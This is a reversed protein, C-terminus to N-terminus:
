REQQERLQKGTSIEVVNSDPWHLEIQLDDLKGSAILKRGEILMCNVHAWRREGGCRWFEHVETPKGCYRCVQKDDSM